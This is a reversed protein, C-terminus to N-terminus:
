NRAMVYPMTPGQRRNGRVPNGPVCAVRFRDENFHSNDKAFEACLARIIRERYEFRTEAKSQDRPAVDNMVQAIIEYHRQQFKSKSM